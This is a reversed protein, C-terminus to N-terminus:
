LQCSDKYVKHHKFLDTYDSSDEGGELYFHKSSMPIEYALIKQKSRMGTYPWEANRTDHYTVAVDQSHAEYCKHLMQPGTLELETEPYYREKVNEVISDLACKFIPAGPASALIKMQKGKKDMWPFDHGVTAVSCPSYLEELPVFPMIDTDLYVGGQAYLACFRFLDARYAPPAFCHYAEFAENGCHKEIFQAAEDDSVHHRVFSPNQATTAQQHYTQTNDKAVSHYIRPVIEESGSCDPLIYPENLYDQCRRRWEPVNPMNPDVRRCPSPLTEDNIEPYLMDFLERGVRDVTVIADNEIGELLMRSSTNTQLARADMDIEELVDEEALSRTRNEQLYRTRNAQLSRRTENGDQLFRRTSNEGGVAQLSRRTRNAQLDRQSESVVARLQPDRQRTEGSSTTVSAYGDSSDSQSMSALAGVALLAVGAVKWMKRNANGVKDESPLPMVSEESPPLSM